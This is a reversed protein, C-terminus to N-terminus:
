LVQHDLESRAITRSYRNMGSVIGLSVFEALLHSGGYSMFPLTIGTVPLLGINMGVNITIHSLLLVSVGLCFLTEFNSEGRRAVYLLRFILTGYLSLVVIVGTFGWEEAFSAFIFDTQYEPLFKLKSQTGYGIGKGILEGSGVAVTSQYANYGAGRIDALPHIFSVIRAKQYDRFVFQWMLVAVLVGIGLVYFLQKKSIGSLLIIGLWLCLIIISSGFDPQLLVLLFIILTYIGSVVIHRVHRIEIHRRSFYKSLILILAVKALDVPQFSFAGLDFWSQAGRTVSGLVFLLTLMIASTLYVWVIVGSRRLFRWDILSFILFATLGLLIWAAQKNFFANDETFSFMTVLGFLSLLVSPGLLLWDIPFKRKQGSSDM